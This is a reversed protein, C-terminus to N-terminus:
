LVRAGSQRRTANTLSLTTRRYKRGGGDVGGSEESAWEDYDLALQGAKYCDGEELLGRIARQVTSDM